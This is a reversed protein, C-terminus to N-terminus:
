VCGGDGLSMIDNDEGTALGFFGRMGWLGGYGEGM